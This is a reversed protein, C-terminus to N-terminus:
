RVGGPKLTSFEIFSNDIVEDLSELKTLTSEAFGQSIEVLSKYESGRELVAVLTRTVLEEAFGHETLFLAADTAADRLTASAIAAQEADAKAKALAAAQKKAEAQAKEAAKRAQEIEQQRQAEAAKAQQQQIEKAQRELDAQRAALEARQAALAKTEAERKAAAEAQERGRAEAAEKAVRENEARDADMKAKEAEHQAAAEHMATLQGLVDRQARLARAIYDDDFGTMDQDRLRDIGAQIDAALRHVYALPLQIIAALGADQSALRAREKAERAQRAQEVVAEQAKIQADIPEELELIAATIRKAEGNRTAIRQQDDDNLDKRLKDLSTRLKVLQMRSARAEQDGKTTTCDFTHDAVRQRMETLAAETASFPALAHESAPMVTSM